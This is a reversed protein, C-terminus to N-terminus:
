RPRPTAALAVGPTTSLDEDQAIFDLLVGRRCTCKGARRAGPCVVRFRLRNLERALTSLNMWAKACNGESFASRPWSRVATARIVDFADFRDRTSSYKPQRRCTSSSDVSDPVAASAPRVIISAASREGCSPCFKPVSGENSRFGPPQALARHWAKAAM